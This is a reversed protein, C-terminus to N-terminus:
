HRDHDHDRDRDRDHHHWRHVKKLYRHNWDGRREYYGRVWRHRPGWHGPVWVWHWGYDWFDPGEYYPRDGVNVELSIAQAAPGFM